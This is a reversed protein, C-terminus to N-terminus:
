EYFTYSGKNHLSDFAKAADIDELFGVFGFGKSKYQRDRIIRCEELEGFKEFIDRVEDEVIEFPVNKFFLRNALFESKKKDDGETENTTTTKVKKLNNQAAKTQINKKNRNNQKTFLKAKRNQIQDKTKALEVRIKQAGIFSGNFKKVADKASQNDRFGVFGFGRHTEGKFIIRCDTVRGFESFHNKMQSESLHKPLNKVMIRSTEM